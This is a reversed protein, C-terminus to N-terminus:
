GVAPRELILRSLDIRESRFGGECYTLYYRWTRIFREDFGQERVRDLAALFQRHWHQLTRAYHDGLHDERRISLGAHAAREHLHARTPLMGGPFIYRQIFDPSTRYEEFYDPDITIGHLAIRGGARVRQYLTDFYTAWFAEGVAELMEISVVHDFQGEVERYDQLRLEVSDSLGAADIRDRAEYLQEQSLTVGTVHAGARAAAEAFGGWGCGIELVRDGARIPLMDILQQYKREQASALSEDPNAFVAGSYTMGDDLWLRYFANGLDYHAEINRRSRQRTNRNRWHDLLLKTRSLWTPKAATGLYRENIALLTMLEGLEPSSWDGAVYSEGFGLAGRRLARWLLRGPAHLHIEGTVGPEGTRIVFRRGDPLLGELRGSRIRSLWHIIVRATLPVPRPLELAVDRATNM